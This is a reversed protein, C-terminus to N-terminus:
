MTVTWKIEKRCISTCNFAGKGIRIVSSPIEINPLNKCDKFAYDGIKALGNLLEISTLQKCGCFAYNGIEKLSAPISISCLKKNKFVGDSIKTIGDPINVHSENEYYKLIIKKEKDVEFPDLMSDSEKKM